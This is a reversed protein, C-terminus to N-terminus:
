CQALSSQSLHGGPSAQAPKGAVSLVTATWVGPGKPVPFQKDITMSQPLQQNIEGPLTPGSLSVVVQDGVKGNLVRMHFMITVPAECPTPGPGWYLGLEAVLPGQAAAPSGSDGAPTGSGASCAVVAM